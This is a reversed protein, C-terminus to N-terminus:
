VRDWSSNDAICRGALPGNSQPLRVMKPIMKGDLEIDSHGEWVVDMDVKIGNDAKHVDVGAISIPVDGLDIKVFRLTALPGPLMSALMPEVIEKIM